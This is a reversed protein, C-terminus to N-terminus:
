DLNYLTRYITQAKKVRNIYEETEPYPIHTLTVGDTSYRPDKLWGHVRGQGANYAALATTEDEFQQYLLTLTYTGFRISTEPDTLATEDQPDKVGSRTQAWTFTEPTLQMLGIAGASSVAEPRFHSETCIIAAILSPTIGYDRSYKEILETFELPYAAYLYQRYGHALLAVMGALIAVVLLLILLLHRPRRKQSM